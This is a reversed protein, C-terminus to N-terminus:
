QLQMSAESITLATSINNMDTINPRLQSLSVRKILYMSMAHLSYIAALCPQTRLAVIEYCFKILGAGATRWHGRWGRSLMM